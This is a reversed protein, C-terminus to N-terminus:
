TRRRGLLRRLLGSQKHAVHMDTAIGTRRELDDYAQNLEACSAQFQSVGDVGQQTEWSKLRDVMDYIARLLAVAAQYDNRDSDRSQALWHDIRQHAFDALTADDAGIGVRNGNSTYRNTREIWQATDPHSLHEIRIPSNADIREIRDSLLQIGGHVTPGFEVAGRRFFRVHHEPWYYAREDFRGLIHHRLPLSV